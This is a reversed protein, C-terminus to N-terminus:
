GTSPSHPRAPAATALFEGALAPFAPKASETGPDPLDGPCPFALGSWHKQSFLEMSLPAQCAITVFDSVVSSLM